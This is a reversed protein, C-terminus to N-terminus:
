REEAYSGNWFMGDGMYDGPELPCSNTPNDDDDTDVYIFKTDDCCKARLVATNHDYDRAFDDSHYETDCYPCDFTTSGSWSDYRMFSAREMDEALIVQPVDGEKHVYELTAKAKGELKRNIKHYIDWYEMRTTDLGLEEQAQEKEEYSFLGEYLGRGDSLKQYIDQAEVLKECLEERSLGKLNEGLSKMENFLTKWQEVKAKKM